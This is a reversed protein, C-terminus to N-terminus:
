AFADGACASALPQIADLLGALDAPAFSADNSYQLEAIEFGVLPLEALAACVTKLMALSLGGPVRFETPVLGPDLVDCDLHVYVKQKGIAKIIEGALDASNARVL